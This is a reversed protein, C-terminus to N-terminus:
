QGQNGFDVINVSLFPTYEPSVQPWMCHMQYKSVYVSSVIKVSKSLASDLLNFLKFTHNYMVFQQASNLHMNILLWHYKFFIHCVDDSPRVSFIQWCEAFDLILGVFHPTYVDPRKYGGIYLRGPLCVCVICV